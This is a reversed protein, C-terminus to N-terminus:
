AWIKKLGSYIGSIRSRVKWWPEQYLEVRPIQMIDHSADNYFRQEVALGYTYGTEKSLRIVREDFSGIPYSITAPAEGLKERIRDYSLQLEERIENEDPLSALMPHTHSHSGIIFGENKMTTIDDWNMMIRVIPPIDNCQSMLQAIMGLRAPNSLKKMWPKVSRIDPSGAKIKKLNAPVEHGDFHFFPKKSHRFAHDVVYTWTPVNRDISDTVIYFSAPCENERLIPAAFEINDKYGDDFLVTALKKTNDFAKPDALWAELPVVEFHKKLHRIIAAFLDPKMPPWM